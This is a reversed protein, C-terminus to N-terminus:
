KCRCNAAVVQVVDFRITKRELTQSGKATSLFELGFGFGATDGGVIAKGDIESPLPIVLVPSRRDDEEHMTVKLSDRGERFLRVSM